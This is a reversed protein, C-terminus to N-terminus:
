KSAEMFPKEPESVQVIVVKAPSQIHNAARVKVNIPELLAEGAKRHIPERGELTFTNQVVYVIVPTPHTHWAGRM